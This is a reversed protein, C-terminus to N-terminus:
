MTGPRDEAGPESSLPAFGHMGNAWQLALMAGKARPLFALTAALLIPGWIAFQVWLPPAFLQRPFLALPVVLHGVVMITVYPPADDAKHGTFDLACAPCTRRNKVYSRFLGGEGCRPCRKRLGRWIARPWARQPSAAGTPLTSNQM